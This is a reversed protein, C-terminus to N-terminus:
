GGCQIHYQYNWHNHYDLDNPRSEILSVTSL